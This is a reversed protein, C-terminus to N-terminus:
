YDNAQDPSGFQMNPIKQGTAKFWEPITTQLTERHHMALAGTGIGLIFYPFPSRTLFWWCKRFLTEDELVPDGMTGRTANDIAQLLGTHNTYRTLGNLIFRCNSSLDVNTSNALHKRIYHSDKAMHKWIQLLKKRADQIYEHSFATEIDALREAEKANRFCGALGSPPPNRLINRVVRRTWVPIFKDTPSLPYSLLPPPPTESQNKDLWELRHSALLCLHLLPLKEEIHRNPSATLVHLMNVLAGYLTRVRDPNICYPDLSLVLHHAREVIDDAAIPKNSLEPIIFLDKNHKHSNFCVIERAIRDLIFSNLVPGELAFRQALKSTTLLFRLRHRKLMVSMESLGDYSRCVLLPAYSAPHDQAILWGAALCGIATSVGKNIM